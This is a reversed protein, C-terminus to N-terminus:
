KVGTIIDHRLTKSESNGIAKCLNQISQNFEKCKNGGHADILTEVILRGIKHSMFHM